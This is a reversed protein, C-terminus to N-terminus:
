LYKTFIYLDNGRSYFDRIRAGLECGAHLYFQRTPEYLPKGETEIILLSGGLLRIDQEVRALLQKGIGKGQFQQGVGVWYLDFTSETLPRRGYCAFGCMEDEIRAILFHYWSNEKQTSFETWLEKITKLDDSNFLEINESLSFLDQSDDPRPISITIEDPSM